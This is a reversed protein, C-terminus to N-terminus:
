TSSKLKEIEELLDKPIDKDNLIYLKAKAKLIDLESLEEVEGGCLVDEDDDNLGYKEFLEEIRRWEALEEDSIKKFKRNLM